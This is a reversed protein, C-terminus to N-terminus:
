KILLFDSVRHLDIWLLDPYVKQRELSDIGRIRSNKGEGLSISQSCL